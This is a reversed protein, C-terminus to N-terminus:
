HYWYDDPPQLFTGDWDVETYEVAPVVVGWQELWWEWKATTCLRRLLDNLLPWPNIVKAKDVDGIERRGENYPGAGFNKILEFDAATEIEDEQQKAVLQETRRQIAEEWTRLLNTPVNEVVTLGTVDLVYEIARDVLSQLTDADAGTPEPYEFEDFPMLSWERVEEATIAGNEEALYRMPDSDFTAGDADAWRIIYWGDQILAESTTFNRVAPDSPDSDVPSLAITTITTYTGDEASAERIQAETFPESDFRRPPSYGEFSRIFM